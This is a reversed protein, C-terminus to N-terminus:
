SYKRTTSAGLAMDHESLQTLKILFPASACISFKTLGVRLYPDLPFLQLIGWLLLPALIFNAVLMRLSSKRDQLYKVIDHLQQTLGVNLMTLFVFVPLVIGVTRILIEFM